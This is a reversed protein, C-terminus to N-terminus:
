QRMPFLGFLKKPKPRFSYRGSPLLVPTALFGERPTAIELGLKVGLEKLEQWSIHFRQKRWKSLSLVQGRKTVAVIKTLSTTLLRKRVRQCTLTIADIDDIHYMHRVRHFKNLRMLSIIRRQNLDIYYEVYLSSKMYFLVLYGLTTTHFWLESKPFIMLSIVPGLFFWFVLASNIHDYLEPRVDLKVTDEKKIQLLEELEEPTM